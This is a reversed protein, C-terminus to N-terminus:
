RVFRGRLQEYTLRYKSAIHMAYALGDPPKRVIKFTRRTPNEEEVTSMMSITEKSHTALEDLFTVLITPAGLSVFADMMHRGLMLADNLTTSSFIENVIVISRNTAADLLARLRVLDDQLKGNLTSLDEEEGFHTYISDFLYLSAEKGPICFGLSSLYHIQGFSRAFTTKGGQNPGTVVIIHEGKELTFDNTVTNNLKVRALALDFCDLAYLHDSRENMQPYCFSLGAEKLPIIFDLWSLYFQIERSFQSIIRDDFNFYESCFSNLDDFTQKYHKSLMNLVAAEVHTASPEDRLKHSYDKVDGQRFKEFCALVQTSHDTQGEYKRVRITGDKILMCYQVKSFAERLHKAHACLGTFDQSANYEKLYDLFRCLGASQLPFSTLGELLLSVNNCYREAYDLMHGRTLYNNDYSENSSLAKRINSMYRNVEYVTKSFGSFLTRLKTNELECSVDQRYNITEPDHLPTFFFGELGFAKKSELIPSIIQDLNLDRFCAPVEIELPKNYREIDPFLISYFM